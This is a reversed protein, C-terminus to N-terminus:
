GKERWRGEEDEGIRRYRQCVAKASVEDDVLAM